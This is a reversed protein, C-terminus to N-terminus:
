PHSLTALLAARLPLSQVFLHQRYLAYSVERRIVAEDFNEGLVEIVEDVLAFSLEPYHYALRALAVPASARLHESIQVIM